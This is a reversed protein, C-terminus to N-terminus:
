SLSKTGRYYYFPNSLILLFNNLFDYLSINDFFLILFFLILNYFFSPISVINSNRRKYTFIDLLFGQRERSFCEGWRKVITERKPLSSQADASESSATSPPRRRTSSWKRLALNLVVFNSRPTSQSTLSKRRKRRWICRFFGWWADGAFMMPRWARLWAFTTARSWGLNKQPLRNVSPHRTVVITEAVNVNTTNSNNNGTM